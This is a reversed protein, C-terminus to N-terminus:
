IAKADIVHGIKVERWGLEDARSISEVRINSLNQITTSGGAFIDLFVTQAFGFPDVSQRQTFNIIRDKQADSLASYEASNIADSIDKGSVGTKNKSRYKSNLDDAIQQDTMGAYGRSLPDNQIEERLESMYSM